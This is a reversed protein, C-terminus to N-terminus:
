MLQFFFFFLFRDKTYQYPNKKTSAEFQIEWSVFPPWSFSPRFCFIEFHTWFKLVAPLRTMCFYINLWNLLHHVASFYNIFFYNSLISAVHLMQFHWRIMALNITTTPIFIMLLSGRWAQFVRHFYPRPKGTESDYAKRVRVRVKESYIQLTLSVFSDKVLMHFKTWWTELAIKRKM